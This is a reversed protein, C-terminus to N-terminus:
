EDTCQRNSNPFRNVSSYLSEGNISINFRWKFHWTLNCQRGLDHNYNELLANAKSCNATIAFIFVNPIGGPRRLSEQRNLDSKLM